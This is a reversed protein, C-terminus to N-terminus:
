QPPIRIENVAGHSGPALDFPQNNWFISVARVNGIKFQFPGPGSWEKSAGAPLIGEFLLESKTTVRLWSDAEAHVRVQHTTVSPKPVMLRSQSPSRRRTWPMPNQELYRPSVLHYVVWSLLLLLIGLGIVQPISSPSWRTSRSVSKVRVGTDGHLPSGSPNSAAPANTKISLAYLALVEDAPVGLFRVYLKLFGLRHSESPLAEWRNEELAELYRPAIHTRKACEGISLRQKLRGERLIEGATKQSEPTM